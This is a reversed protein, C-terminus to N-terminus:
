ATKKTHQNGNKKRTYIERHFAKHAKENPLLMLNELNNNKKNGDIHHVLETGKLKRGIHKEMRYRHEYITNRLVYGNKTETLKCNELKKTSNHGHYYLRVRNRKDYKNFSTGCGCACKIIETKQKIRIKKLYNELGSHLRKIHEDGHWKITM